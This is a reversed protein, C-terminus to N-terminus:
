PTVVYPTVYYITTNVFYRRLSNRLLNRLKVAFVVIVPSSLDEVVAVSVAVSLIGRVRVNNRLEM